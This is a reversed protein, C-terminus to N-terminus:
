DNETCCHCLYTIRELSLPALTSSSRSMAEWSRAEPLFCCVSMSAGCTGSCDSGCHARFWLSDEEGHQRMSFELSYLVLLRKLRANLVITTNLTYCRHHLISVTNTIISLSCCRRKPISFAVASERDPAARPKKSVMGSLASERKSFHIKYCSVEKTFGNEDWM